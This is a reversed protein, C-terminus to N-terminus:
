FGRGDCDPEPVDEVAVARVECVLFIQVAPTAYESIEKKGTLPEKM